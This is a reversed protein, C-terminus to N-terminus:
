TMWAGPGTHVPRRVGERPKQEQPFVAMLDPDEIRALADMADDHLGVPFPAYEEEILDHILDRVNGAHDTRHLSEPLWLQANEFRPILRRIRDEKKLQGGLEVVPFRYQEREQRDKIHEIDAQMGYKEYGVRIPRYERHWKFVLDARETLSLRDRVFDLAYINGDRGLGLVWAATYDSNKKKESAPDVLIYKNLGDTPKAKYYRLWERKFEAGSAPRPRQQYLALWNRADRKAQAVDADKYWEPWLPEGVARGLPDNEEAEMPLRVVTWQEGGAEADKLLQGALDDDRWRQMILVIAGGPKLRTRVDSKYWEWTKERERESDAAERGAVPDDMVIVDARFGVVASGVGAAYYEGGDSTAWRGAAQSDDALRCEPFITGYEPDAILNRVRRGFREALETTHSCALTQLAPNRGLFWAPFAVSGYTSKASGPPMFVMLRLIERREVAELHQILHRHHRAPTLGLAIETFSALSKRATRRRM